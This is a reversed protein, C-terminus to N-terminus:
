AEQRPQVIGFYWGANTWEENNEPTAAVPLGLKERLREAYRQAEPVSDFPGHVDAVEYDKDNDVLLVYGAEEGEQMAALVPNNMAMNLVYGQFAFDLRLSEDPAVDGTVPYGLAELNEAIARFAADQAEEAIRAVQDSVALPLVTQDVTPM